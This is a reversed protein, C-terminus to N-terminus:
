EEKEEKRRGGPAGVDGPRGAQPPYNKEFALGRGGTVDLFPMM